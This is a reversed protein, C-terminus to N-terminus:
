EEIHLFRAAEWMKCFQNLYFDFTKPDKTRTLKFGQRKGAAVQYGYMEVTMHGNPKNGDVIIMSYFPVSSFLKIEIAGKRSKSEKALLKFCEVSEQLVKKAMDAEHFTPNNATLVNIASTNDPDVLLFRFRKGQDVADQFHDWYAIRLGRLTIGSIWIDEGRELRPDFRPVDSRFCFFSDASFSRKALLVALGGVVVLLLVIVIITWVHLTIPLALAPKAINKWWNQVEQEYIAEVALKLLFLLVTLILGMIGLKRWPLM